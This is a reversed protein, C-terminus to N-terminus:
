YLCLMVVLPLVSILWGTLVTAGGSTDDETDTETETHISMDHSEEIDDLDTEDDIFVEDEDDTEDVGLPEPMDHELPIPGKRLNSVMNSKCGYWDCATEKPFDSEIQFWALFMIIYYPYM